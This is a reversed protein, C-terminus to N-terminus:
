FVWGITGKVFRGNWDQTLGFGVGFNFELRPLLYLNVAPVIFEQQEALPYFDSFPGQDGFYELSPELWNWKGHLRYSLQGEPEFSLGAHTGPGTFQKEIALNAVLFFGRFVGQVIPMFEVNFPDSVAARRMYQLEINAGFQIPWGETVPIAFHVKSRAGAYQYGPSNLEATCLYQGIELYPLLGYTFEFTNHIQYLPFNSRSAMGTAAIVSNTHLETLLQGEPATDTTYIQLEYFDTAGARSAFLAIILALVM